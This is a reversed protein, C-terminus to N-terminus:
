GELLNKDKTAPSDSSMAAKEEVGVKKQENNPHASENKDNKKDEALKGTVNDGKKAASIEVRPNDMNSKQNRKHEDLARIKKGEVQLLTGEGKTCKANRDVAGDTRSAPRTSQQGATPDTVVNKEKGKGRKQKSSVEAGKRLMARRVMEDFEPADVEKWKERPLIKGGPVRPMILNSPLGSIDRKLEMGHKERMEQTFDVALKPFGMDVTSKWLREQKSALEGEAEAGFMQKLLVKREQAQLAPDWDGKEKEARAQEAAKQNELLAYQRKKLVPKIIKYLLVLQAHLENDPRYIEVDANIKEWGEKDWPIGRLRRTRGVTIEM